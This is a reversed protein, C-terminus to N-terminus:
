GQDRAAVVALDLRSSVGLKRFISSVQNAVTRESTGRLSAIRRNSAGDLLLSLVARESATVPQFHAGLSPPTELSFSLVISGSSAPEEPELSLGRPLPLSERTTALGPSGDRQPLSLAANPKVM